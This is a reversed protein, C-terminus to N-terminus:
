VRFLGHWEPRPNPWDGVVHIFGTEVLYARRSDYIAKAELEADETSLVISTRNTEKVGDDWVGHIQVVVYSAPPVPMLALAYYEAEENQQEERVGTKYFVEVM